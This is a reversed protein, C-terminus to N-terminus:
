RQALMPGAPVKVPKAGPVARTDAYALCGGGRQRVAGCMSQASGREFGEAAVRFYHRGNVQAETIRMTHDKLAPNRAVFIGWARRAGELSSFSGLQVLHTGGKAPSAARAAHMPAGPKVVSHPLPQVVPRPTEEVRVAFSPAAAAELMPQVAQPTSRAADVPPLEAAPAPAPVEASVMRAPKEVGNLALAAPQGADVRVPAGILGAVRTQFQEPQVRSAWESMRADLQDAPVDQSAVVRAEAWRGDLAYAYALNQRAKATADGGRVADSLVAVGQAPQGALALALGFDSAPIQAHWRDLVALAEANRGSGIYALAHGLGTRPDDNGLSVADEFTTAASQFRGAALYAQALAVRASANRPSKAAQAELKAIGRDAQVGPENVTTAQDASAVAAHGACGALLAIAMASCVTLGATRAHSKIREM